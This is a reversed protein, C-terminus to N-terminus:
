AAFPDNGTTKKPKAPKKEGQKGELTKIRALHKKVREKLENVTSILGQNIDKQELLEKQLRQNEEDLPKIRAIENKADVFDDILEKYSNKFFDKVSTTEELEDELESIKQNYRANDKKREDSQIRLQETLHEIELKLQKRTKFPLKM